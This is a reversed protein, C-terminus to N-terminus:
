GNLWKNFEDALDGILQGYRRLIENGKIQHIRDNIVYSEWPLGSAAFDPHTSPIKFDSNKYLNFQKSCPMILYENDPLVDIIICPRPDVSKGVHVVALVVDLTNM